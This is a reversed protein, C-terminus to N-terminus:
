EEKKKKNQIATNPRYPRPKTGMKRRGWLSGDSETSDPPAKRPAPVCNKRPCAHNGNGEHRDKSAPEEGGVM